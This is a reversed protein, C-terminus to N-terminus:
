KTERKEDYNLWTPLTSGSFFDITYGLARAFYVQCINCIVVSILGLVYPSPHKKIYNWWYTFTRSNM